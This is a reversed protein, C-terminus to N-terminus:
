RPIDVPTLDLNSPYQIQIVFPSVFFFLSILFYFPWINRIFRCFSHINYICMVGRNPIAPQWQGHLGNPGLISHRSLTEEKPRPVSLSRCFYTLCYSNFFSLSSKLVSPIVNFVTRAFILLTGDLEMPLIAVACM